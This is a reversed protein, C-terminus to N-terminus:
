VSFCVTNRMLDSGVLWRNSQDIDPIGGIVNLGRVTYSYNALWYDGGDGSGSPFETSNLPFSHYTYQYLPNDVTKNGNEVVIQITSMFMVDPM